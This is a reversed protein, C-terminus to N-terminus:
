CARALALGDTASKSWKFNVLFNM